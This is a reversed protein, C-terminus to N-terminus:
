RFAFIAAAMTTTAALGAANGTRHFGRCRRFTMRNSSLYMIIRFIARRNQIASDGSGAPRYRLTAATPDDTDFQILAGGDAGITM